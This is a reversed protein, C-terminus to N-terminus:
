AARRRRRTGAADATRPRKLAHKIRRWYTDSTRDYIARARRVAKDRLDCQYRDAALRLQDLEVASCSAPDKSLEACLVAVNHDDGLWREARHLVSVDKRIQRDRAEVLRLAYWLAKIQKRWEHFDAARQRKVARAMAKRGRRHISAVGRALARPGRHAPRWRAARRRARRLERRIDDWAGEQEAAEALARKHALLRRRIRAVTHESLVGPNKEVLTEFTDRTADADRWSSLRRNIRRLRKKSGDLGTGEDADVLALIARAKKVSKRAEHIAEDDPRAARLRDHAAQLTKSALRRFGHSVSEDPRVRFAM